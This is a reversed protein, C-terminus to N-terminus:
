ELPNGVLCNSCNKIYSGVVGLATPEKQTLTFHMLHVHGKMM